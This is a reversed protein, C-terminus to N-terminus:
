GYIPFFITTSIILSVVMLIWLPITFKFTKVVNFNGTGFAIMSGACGTPLVFAYWASVATVLVVTQVNFGGALATSAAIPCMLAMTGMNSMFNTMVSTVICFVAIVFIPAPHGGLINLVTQGILKGVGTNSLITSVASMSAIMFVMDGTITKVAEKVDIVKTLILVIIGAAPITNMIDSPIIGSMMFSIMVAAFVAFIIIEDRKSIPKEEKVEKIDGTNISQSPILKYFLLCYILGLLGPIAAAKFYDAIGILQDGAIGQYFSNITGPMTAGMALPIKATWITNLTCVAFLMRSPSIVSDEDLTTCFLLMISLCAIQGMLQSLLITVVFLTIVIVIGKKGKMSDLVGRLRRIVSTKSLTSAVVIMSAVLITTSSAFGSFATKIDAVGTLVFLVCCIMGTLGYPLWHTLLMVVMFAMICLTIIMPTTM